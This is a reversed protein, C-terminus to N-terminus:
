VAVAGYQLVVRRLQDEFSEGDLPGKSEGWSPGIKLEVPIGRHYWRAAEMRQKILSLAQALDSRHISFLISDHVEFLVRGWGLQPLASSLEIYASFLHDHSIGAPQFNLAQNLAHNGLLDPIFYRRKRGSPLQQEGTNYISQIEAKCKSDHVHYRGHWNVIFEECQRQSYAALEGEHLSKAGRGYAIGFTVYKSDNRIKKWEAPTHDSRKTKFMSESAASHFDGSELDALMQPDESWLAAAWIEGTIFDGEILVDGDDAAIVNRLRVFDPGANYAQPFTQIPPAHYSLRGNRTGHILPDPHIHDTDDLNKEIGTVYTGLHKELKKWRQYRKVWEFQSAYPTLTDEQTNPVPPRVNLYDNLFRRLQVHSGLNISGPWGYAQAQTQLYSELELWEEAWAIGLERLAHRSVRVGRDRDPGLVNVGPILINLYFERVDDEEQRQKFYRALRATYAADHANYEWLEEDTASWPDIEYFGAGCFERSRRKLGHVGVALEKRVAGEDQGGGREDLSYSMCMTDEVIPIDIGSKLLMPSDFMGNHFTYRWDPGTPWELQESVGRSFVFTRTGDSVGVCRLKDTWTYYEPGPVTEIDTALFESGQLSYLAAQAEQPTKCVTYDVHGFDKAKNRIYNIKGLDWVLDTIFDVQGRLIAAPHYTSIVWCNYKPHWWCTGQLKGFGLGEHPSLRVTALAGMAIIVSPKLAILEDDLRQACQDMEITSPDNKYWCILNTAYTSAPDVGVAELVSNKLRGSPGVFPRGERIENAGPAIGVFVVGGPDTNGYGRIGSAHCAPGHEIPM